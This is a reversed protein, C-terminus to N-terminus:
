EDEEVEIDNFDSLKNVYSFYKSFQEWAEDECEAECTFLLTASFRYTKKNM